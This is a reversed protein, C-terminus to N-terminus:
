GRRGGGGRTKPRYTVEGLALVAAFLTAALARYAFFYHIYSHNSLAAFRAIPVLGLALYRGVLAGQVDHQHYVYAVYPVALVAAVAILTGVTGYELPFLCGMNRLVALWRQQTANEAVVAGSRIWIHFGVSQGFRAGLVMGALLWKLAWMGAYGAGWAVALAAIGWLPLPAAAERRDLWLILLLPVLLTLLEATLFDLYSTIMGSVLFFLARVATDRPFRRWLVVHLQVLLALFVWTYELSLPVFWCSVGVLAVGLGLAPVRADRRWLRVLLSTALAALVAADLAYIGQIPLLVLLPRVLALSGHWYRLYERNAPLQQTVAALLNESEDRGDVHYYSSSLVSPVLDDADYQWAIGLLIADAYRDIRSSAIGEQVDFFQDRACLDEASARMQPEIAARPILASGLLAAALLVAMAVFAAVARLAHRVVQRVEVTHGAQTSM